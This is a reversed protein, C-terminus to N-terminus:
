FLTYTTMPIGITTMITITFLLAKPFTWSTDWGEVYGDYQYDETANVIFSVFTRLDVEVKETFTTYTFNYRDVDKAYSWFSGALYNAAAEVRNAAKQKELYLTMEYDYELGIFMQAGIFFASKFELFLYIKANQINKFIIVLLPLLAVM